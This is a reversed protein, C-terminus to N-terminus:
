AWGVFRHGADVSAPSKLGESMVYRGDASTHTYMGRYYYPDNKDVNFLTYYSGGPTGQESIENNFCQVSYAKYVDPAAGTTDTTPSDVYGANYHWSLVTAVFQESPLSPWAYVHQATSPYSGVQTHKSTTGDFIIYEHEAVYLAECDSGPIILAWAKFVGANGNISTVTYGTPFVKEVYPAFEPYPGRGLEDLMAGVAIVEAEGPALDPETAVWDNIFNSTYTGTPAPVSGQTGERSFYEGSLAEGTYSFGGFSVSMTTGGGTPILKQYFYSDNVNLYGLNVDKAAAYAPLWRLNSSTIIPTLSAAVITRSLAVPKWTDNVYYGYVPIGAFAFRPKVSATDMALSVSVLPSNSTELDPVFINYTGWGDTWEGHVETSSEISFGAASAPFPASYSIDVHITSAKWRLDAAGTGLVEHVVISAKTGDTNWKWGYALPSGAAGTFGGIISPSSADITCHAFIYSELKSKVEETFVADTPQIYFERLQRGVSDLQLQYALVQYEPGGKIRLLWWTGDSGTFIGPSDHGWLGFTIVGNNVYQLIFSEGAAEPLLKFGASTEKAGYQAQIFRRMKGSFLSAPFIGAVLKKLVSVDSHTGGVSLSDQGEYLAPDNDQDGVNSAETKIYGLYQGSVPIDLFHWKAADLRAPNEEGPFSWELQGSELYPFLAEVTTTGLTTFEPWGNRTQLMTVSGDPNNQFRKKINGAGDTAELMVREPGTGIIGGHRTPFLTGLKNDDFAM